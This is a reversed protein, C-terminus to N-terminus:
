SCQSMMPDWLPPPPISLVEPVALISKGQQRVECLWLQVWPQLLLM